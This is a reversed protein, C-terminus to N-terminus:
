QGGRLERLYGLIAKIEDNSLYEFAPMMPFSGDVITHRLSSPDGGFKWYDDLLNAAEYSRYKPVKGAGDLGHCEACYRRFLQEGQSRQGALDSCASLSAWFALLTVFFLTTRTSM